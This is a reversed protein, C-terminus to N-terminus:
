RVYGAALYTRFGADILRSLEEFLAADPKTFNFCSKGQMRRRLADSIRSLLEPNTYIPMLHLSVYSKGARVGGFFMARKLAACHCGDLMYTSADDATAVLRAAYPAFLARLAAFTIERERPTM